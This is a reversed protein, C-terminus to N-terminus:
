ATRRARPARVRGADSHNAGKAGSDSGAEADHPFGFATFVAQEDVHVGDILRYFCEINQRVAPWADPDDSRAIRALKLVEVLFELAVPEGDIQSIHSSSVGETSTSDLTKVPSNVPVAGSAASILDSLIKDVTPTKGTAEFTENQQRKIWRFVEMSIKIAGRDPTM